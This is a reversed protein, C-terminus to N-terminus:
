QDGSINPDVKPDPSWLIMSPDDSAWIIDGNDRLLEKAGMERASGDVFAIVGRNSYRAVFAKATGKPSGDYDSKSITPHARKEGPLGREFFAVTRTQESIQSLKLAPKSGDKVRRNLRSNMGMAFYPRAMKRGNPYHAGPLFMMSAPTYFAAENGATVYDGVGQSQVARPLANYWAESATPLAAPAWEDKGGIDEAPIMGDHDAAYRGLAAGLNGMVKIAQIKQTKTRMQLAIPTAISLLVLVIAVVVLVEM